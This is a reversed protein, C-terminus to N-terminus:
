QNESRGKEPDYPQEKVRIPDTEIDYPENPELDTGRRNAIINGHKEDREHEESKDKDNM